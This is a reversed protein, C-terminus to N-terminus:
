GLQGRIAGAPFLTSHYNVYYNSPTACIAAALTPAISVEGSAKIQEDEGFGGPLPVVVPGNLGVPGIHVHAAVFNQGDNVIATRWEVTADNRIKIQTHGFAETAKPPVESAGDLQAMLSCMTANASGNPGAFTVAPYLVLASLALALLTLRRM